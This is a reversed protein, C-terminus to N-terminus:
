EHYHLTGMYVVDVDNWAFNYDELTNPDVKDWVSGDTRVADVVKCEIKIPCKKDSGDEQRAVFETNALSQADIYPLQIVHFRLYHEDGPEFTPDVAIVGVNIPLNLLQEIKGRVGTAFASDSFTMFSASLVLAALVGCLAFKRM